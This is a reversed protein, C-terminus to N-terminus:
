LRMRLRSGARSRHTWHFGVPHAGHRVHLGVGPEQEERVKRCGTRQREAAARGAGAQGVGVGVGEPEFRSSISLYESIEM